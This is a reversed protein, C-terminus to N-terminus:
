RRGEWSKATNCHLCAPRINSPWNAGRKGLPIVHDVTDGAGGCVWCRDGFYAFRAAIADGTLVGPVGLARAKENASKALMALRNRWYYDRARRALEGKDRRANQAKVQHPNQERYAQARRRQGEKDAAYYAKNYHSSCLGRAKAPLACKTCPPM